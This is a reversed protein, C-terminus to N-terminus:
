DDDPRTTTIRRMHAAATQNSRRTLHGLAAEGRRGRLLLAEMVPDQSLDLLLPLEPGHHQGAGSTLARRKM